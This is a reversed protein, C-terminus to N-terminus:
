KREQLYYVKKGNQMDERLLNQSLMTRVLNRSFEKKDQVAAKKKSYFESAKIGDVQKEIETMSIFENKKLYKLIKNAGKTYLQRYLDKELNNSKVVGWGYLFAAALAFLIVAIIKIATQSM